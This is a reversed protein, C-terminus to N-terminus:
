MQELAKQIAPIVKETEEKTLRGLKSFAKSGDEKTNERNIGVKPENGDYSYVGVIIATKEFEIKESYKEVDLTKDYGM